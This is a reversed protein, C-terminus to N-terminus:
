GSQPVKLKEWDLETFYMASCIPCYCEEVLDKRKTKTKCSPCTLVEEPDKSKTTTM